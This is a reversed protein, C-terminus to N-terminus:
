DSEGEKYGELAKIRWDMKRLKNFIITIAAVGVLNVIKQKNIIVNQRDIIRDQLAIHKCIYNLMEDM